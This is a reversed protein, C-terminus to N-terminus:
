PGQPIWAHHDPSGQTESHSGSSKINLGATTHLDQYAVRLFPDAFTYSHRCPCGLNRVKVPEEGPHNQEQTSTEETESESNSGFIIHM